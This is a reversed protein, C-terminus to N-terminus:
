ARGARVKDGLKVPIRSVREDIPTAVRQTHNEDFGVKGTLRVPLGWVVKIYKSRSNDLGKRSSDRSHEAAMAPTSGTSCAQVGLSVVFLFFYMHRLKFEM